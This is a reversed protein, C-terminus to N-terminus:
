NTNLNVTTAVTYYYITGNDVWLYIPVNSDSTSVINTDILNEDSIEMSRVLDNNKDISTISSDITQVKTLFDTDNLFTTSLEKVEITGTKEVNVTFACYTTGIIVFFSAFIILLKIKKM